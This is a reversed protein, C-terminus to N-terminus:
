HADHLTVTEDDPSVTFYIVIARLKPTAPLKHAYLPGRSQLIAVVPYKSFSHERALAWSNPHLIRDDIQEPTLQPVLGTITQHFGDAEVVARLNYPSRPWM